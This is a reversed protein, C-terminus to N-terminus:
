SYIETIKRGYSPVSTVVCTTFLAIEIVLLGFTGSTTCRKQYGFGKWSSIQRWVVSWNHYCHQTAIPKNNQHVYICPVTNRRVGIFFLAKTVAGFIVAVSVLTPMTLTSIVRVGAQM